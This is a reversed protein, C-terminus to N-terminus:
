GRPGAGLAALIGSLGNKADGVIAVQARHVLGIVAPDIDLHILTQEPKFSLKLMLGKPSRHTFRCGVALVVDARELAAQTSRYNPLVGVWLPDTEPIAGRGMVSTIVPAGLRRALAALEASAGAAIVGGGAGILPRGASPLRGAAVGM